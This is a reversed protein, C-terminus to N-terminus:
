PNDRREYGSDYNSNFESVEPRVEPMTVYNTILLEESGGARGSVDRVRHAAQHDRASGNGSILKGKLDLIMVNEVTREDIQM